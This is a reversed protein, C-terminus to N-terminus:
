VSSPVGGVETLSGRSGTWVLLTTDYNSGFTNADIGTAGSATFAYWVTHSTEVCSPQPDDSASSADITSISDTFPLSTITTASGFDDNSPATAFARGTGLLGLGISMIGVLAVKLGRRM